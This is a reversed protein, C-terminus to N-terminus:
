HNIGAVMDGTSDSQVASRDGPRGKNDISKGENDQQDPGVSYVRGPNYIAGQYRFYHLPRGDAFPDEPVNKLFGTSVLEALTAPADLRHETNRYAHIACETMLLAHDARSRTYTFQAGSFVPTLFATLPDTGEPEPLTIGGHYPQRAEAIMTEMYETYNNLIERKSWRM